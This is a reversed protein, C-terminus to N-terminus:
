FNPTNRVELVACESVDEGGGRVVVVAERGRLGGARWKLM